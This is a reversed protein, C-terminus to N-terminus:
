GGFTLLTSISRFGFFDVFSFSIQHAMDLFFGDWRGRNGHYWDQCDGEWISMWRSGHNTEVSCTARERRRLGLTEKSGKICRWKQSTREKLQAVDVRSCDSSASFPQSPGSSGHSLRCPRALRRWLASPASASVTASFSQLRM